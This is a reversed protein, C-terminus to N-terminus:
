RSRNLIANALALTVSLAIAYVQNVLALSVLLNYFCHALASGVYGSDRWCKVFIYTLIAIATLWIVLMYAKAFISVTNPLALVVAIRSPVHLMIFIFSSIAAGVLPIVARFLEEAFGVYLMTLFLSLVTALGATDGLVSAGITYPTLLTKVEDFVLYGYAFLLLSLVLAAIRAVRAVLALVLLWISPAFVNIYPVALISVSAAALSVYALWLHSYYINEYAARVAFVLMAILPVYVLYPIDVFLLLIFTMASAVFLILAAPHRFEPPEYFRECAKAFVHAVADVLGIGLLLVLLDLLNAIGRSLAVTICSLYMVARLIAYAVVDGPTYAKKIEIVASM